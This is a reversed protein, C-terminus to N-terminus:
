YVEFAEPDYADIVIPVKNFCPRRSSVLDTPPYSGMPTMSSILDRYKNEGLVIVKTNDNMREDLEVVLSM